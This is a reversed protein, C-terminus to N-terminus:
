GNVHYKDDNILLMQCIYMNKKLIRFTIGFICCCLASYNRKEHYKQSM